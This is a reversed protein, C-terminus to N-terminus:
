GRVESVSRHGVLFVRRSAGQGTSPLVPVSRPDRRRPVEGNRKATADTSGQREASWGAM